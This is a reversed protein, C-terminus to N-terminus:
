EGSAGARQRVLLRRWNVFGYLDNMLFIVFCFIMPAYVPDEAAALIWLLILVADNSAYAAAYYVSRLCVFGAGLFSTAVSVSSLVLNPTDLYKLLFYFFVTVPVTLLFLIVCAKRGPVAIEVQNKKESPHRLWIIGSIVASPLSMLLFTAMEGYYRYRFSIWAYMLCFLAMLFQGAPNARAIFILSTAGTIVAALTLPYQDPMLFFVISVGTISFIWLGLEFGTFSSLFGKM